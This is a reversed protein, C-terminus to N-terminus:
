EDMEPKEGDIGQQLVKFAQESCWKMMHAGDGGEATTNWRQRRDRNHDLQMQMDQAYAMQRLGILLADLKNELRKFDDDTMAM